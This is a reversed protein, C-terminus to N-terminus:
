TIVEFRDDSIVSSSESIRVGGQEPGNNEMYVRGTSVFGLVNLLDAQEAISKDLDKFASSLDSMRPASSTDSMMSSNRKTVDLADQARQSIERLRTALDNDRGEQSGRRDVSACKLSNYNSSSARNPELLESEGTEWPFDYEHSDFDDYSELVDTNLRSRRKERQMRVSLPSLPVEDANSMNITSGIHLSTRDSHKSEALKQMPNHSPSRNQGSLNGNQTPSHDGNDMSSLNDTSLFSPNLRANCSATQNKMDHRASAVCSKCFLVYEPRSLSPTPVDFSASNFAKARSSVECDKCMNEGCASCRSRQRVLSFKRHCIYCFKRDVGAIMRQFRQGEVQRAMYKAEEVKNLNSVISTFTEHIFQILKSSSHDNMSISGQWLVNSADNDTNDKFLLVASMKCRLFGLPIELSTNEPIDVSQMVVYGINTKSVDVTTGTSRLYCVDRNKGFIGSSRTALWNLGLYHHPKEDTKTEIANLVVADLANEILFTSNSRFDTTNDSYLANLCHGVSMQVKGMCRFEIERHSNRDRSDSRRSYTRIGTDRFQRQSNSLKWGNTGDEYSMAWKAKQVAEISLHDALNKYNVHQEPSCSVIPFNDHTLPFCPHHNSSSTHRRMSARANHSRSNNM